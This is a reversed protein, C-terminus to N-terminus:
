ALLSLATNLLASQGAEKGLTCVRLARQRTFASDDARRAGPNRVIEKYIFDDDFGITCADSRTCAYFMRDLRAWYSAALCMPCPECSTYIECGRLDFRQVTRCAERIAMIEAHAPPDCLRAVQNWGRGIIHGEAVM